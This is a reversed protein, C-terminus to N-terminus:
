RSAILTSPLHAANPAFVDLGLATRDDMRAAPRLWAAGLGIAVAAAAALMAIRPSRWSEWWLILTASKRRAIERWVGAEFGDGFAPVPGRKLQELHRDLNPNM